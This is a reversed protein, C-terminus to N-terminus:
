QISGTGQATTVPFSATTCRTHNTATACDFGTISVAVGPSFDIALNQAPVPGANAISVTVTPTATDYHAFVTSPGTLTVSVDASQAFGGRAFFCVLLSVALLPLRRTM